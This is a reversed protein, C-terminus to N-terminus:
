IALASIPATSSGMLMLTKGENAWAEAFVLDFSLSLKIDAQPSLTHVARYVAQVSKLMIIDDDNCVGM